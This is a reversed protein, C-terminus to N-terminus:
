NRQARILTPTNPTVRFESFRQGHIAFVRSNLDTYKSRGFNLSRQRQSSSLTHWFRWIFFHKAYLQAPKSPHCHNLITVFLQRLHHPMRFTAAEALCHNWEDDSELNGNLECAEKFTQYPHVQRDKVVTTLDDYGKSGNRNCQLIRSAFHEENRPSVTVLRGIRRTNWARKTRKRM